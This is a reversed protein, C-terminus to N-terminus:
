KRFLNLLKRFLNVLNNGVKYDISDRYMSKLKNNEELLSIFSPFRKQYCKIHKLYIKYKLREIADINMKNMSAPKIRYYFYVGDLRKVISGDDLLRIWLEWDEFATMSEDYMGAEIFDTKKYVASCFILNGSLLLNYSYDPLKWLASESGFKQANCYVLKTEPSIKFHNIAELIYDKHIIDDGDLPLIFEGSSNLIGTNRAGPLGKNNQYIYEFRKDKEVYQQAIDETNDTAGDNVILCEWNPYTQALISDLADPLYEAQNYCPVIISVLPLSM